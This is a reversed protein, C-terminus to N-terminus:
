TYRSYNNQAFMQRNDHLPKYACDTELYRGMDIQLRCYQLGAALILRRHLPPDAPRWQLNRASHYFHKIFRRGATFSSLTQSCASYIRSSGNFSWAHFRSVFRLFLLLLLSYSAEDCFTLYLDGLDPPPAACDSCGISKIAHFWARYAQYQQRWPHHCV